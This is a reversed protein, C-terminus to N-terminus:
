PNRVMLHFTQPLFAFPRYLLQLSTSSHVETYIVRLDVQISYGPFTLEQQTELAILCVIESRDSHRTPESIVELIAAICLCVQMNHIVLLM